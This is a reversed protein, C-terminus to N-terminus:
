CTRLGGPRLLRSIVSLSMPESPEANSWITTGWLDLVRRASEREFWFCGHVQRRFYESPKLAREPHDTFAGMNDWQWEVSDRRLQGM